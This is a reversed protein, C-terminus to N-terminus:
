ERPETDQWDFQDGCLAVFRLETNGICIHVLNELEVPSLVPQDGLYTLNRGGGHQLYYKRGRPDYTLVAHGSRSIEEDGFDLSVRVENGRGIPNAGYGLQLARGKGPGSVVVLWGVVPDDMADKQQAAAELREREEVSRRRGVLVTHPSKDAGAPQSGREDMKRTRAELRDIGVRDMGASDSEVEIKSRVEPQDVYETKTEVIKGDPRRFVPM